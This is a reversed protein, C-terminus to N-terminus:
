VRVWGKLGGAMIGAIIGRQMVLFIVILPLVAVTGGVM